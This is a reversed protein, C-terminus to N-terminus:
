RILFVSCADFLILFLPITVLSVVHTWFIGLSVINDRRDYHSMIVSLTTASPMIAQLLILFAVEFSPKLLFIIGFFILPLFILKAIILYVIHRIHEKTKFNILALNGGVVFM